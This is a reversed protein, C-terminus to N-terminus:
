AKGYQVGALKCATAFAREKTAAGTGTLCVNIRAEERARHDAGRRPLHDVHDSVANYAAWATREMGPINNRPLNYARIISDRSEVIARERRETWEPDIKSPVPCIADLYAEWETTTLKRAALQKSRDVDAEFSDTVGRLIAKAEDLKDIVSGTHRISLEKIKSGKADLAMRRMNACEVRHAVPGFNIGGEGDHQLDCFIYPLVKDGPVIQYEKPMRAVLCTKKGGWLNFACEYEIQGESVLSDMFSFAESPQVVKYRPSVLGLLLGTDERVNALWDPTENWQTTGDERKRGIAVPHQGVTFGVTAL